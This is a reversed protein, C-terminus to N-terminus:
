AKLFLGGMCQLLLSRIQTLRPAVSAITAAITGGVSGHEAIFRGSLTNHGHKFVPQRIKNRFGLGYGVSVVCPAHATPAGDRGTIVVWDGRREPASLGICPM